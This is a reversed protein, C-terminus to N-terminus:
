LVSSTGGQGGPGLRRRGSPKGPSLRRGCPSTARGKKKTGTPIWVRGMRSGPLIRKQFSAYAPFKAIRFYYSGDETRYAFGKKALAAIFEAMEQIYDTARVLFEPHEISVIDSDERFAKEYKETYQRVTLQERASNQIIRDDVDTINMVHCLKYGSQRLFRRLVDV